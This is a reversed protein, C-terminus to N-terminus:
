GSRAARDVTEGRRRSGRTRCGSDPHAAPAAAIRSASCGSSCRSWASRWTSRNSGPPTRRTSSCSGSRPYTAADSPAHTFRIPRPDAAAAPDVDLLATRLLDPSVAFWDCRDGDASIARREYLQRRNYLTVTTPDAVFAPANDHQIVVATRPFVFCDNQIPGSNRFSPHDTACRFAGITVCETSFVVRDAASM